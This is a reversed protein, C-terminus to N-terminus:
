NTLLLEKTEVKKIEEFTMLCNEQIPLFLKPSLWDHNIWKDIGVYWFSQGNAIPNMSPSYHCVRITYIEGKIISSKPNTPNGVVKQGIYFPSYNYNEM